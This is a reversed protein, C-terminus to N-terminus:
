LCSGARVRRSPHLRFQQSVALPRPQRWRQHSDSGYLGYIVIYAMVIYTMVVIATGIYAMVVFAMVICAMGMCTIGVCAVAM